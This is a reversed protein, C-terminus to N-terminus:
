LARKLGDASLLEPIDSLMSDIVNRPAATESQSVYDKAPKIRISHQLSGELTWIIRRMADSSFVRIRREAMEVSSPLPQSPEDNADATSDGHVSM